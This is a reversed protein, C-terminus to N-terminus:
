GTGLCVSSLCRTKLNHPNYKTCDASQSLEFALGGGGGRNRETLWLKNREAALFGIYYLAGKPRISIGLHDKKLCKKGKLHRFPVCRGRMKYLACLYASM